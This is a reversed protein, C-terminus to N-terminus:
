QRLRGDRGGSSRCWRVAFRARRTASRTRGSKMAALVLQNCRSERRGEILQRLLVAALLETARQSCCHPKALVKWTKLSAIAREGIARSRPKASDVDWMRVPLNGGYFLVGVAGRACNRFTNLYM